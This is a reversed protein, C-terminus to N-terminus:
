AGSSSMRKEFNAPTANPCTPSAWSTTGTVCRRRGATPPLPHTSSGRSPSPLVPRRLLYRPTIGERAVTYYGNTSRTM